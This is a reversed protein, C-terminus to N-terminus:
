KMISWKIQLEEADWAAAFKAFEQVTGAKRGGTQGYFYYAGKEIAAGRILVPEVSNQPLEYFEITNYGTDGSASIAFTGDAFIRLNTGHGKNQAIHVPKGDSLTFLDLIVAGGSDKRAAVVCEKIDDKNLDVLAYHIHDYEYVWPVNENVYPGFTDIGTGPATDQYQEIIVEYGTKPPEGWAIYELCVWGLEMHGWEREGDTSIETIVVRDLAKLVGLIGFSTSPGKRIRLEECDEMVYGEKAMETPAPEASLGDSSETSLEAPPEAPSPQVAATKPMEAGAKPTETETAAPESRLLLFLLMGALVVAVICLIVKRAPHAKKPTAYKGKVSKDGREKESIRCGCQPCVTKGDEVPGHCQTCRM